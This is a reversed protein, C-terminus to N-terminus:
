DRPLQFERNSFDPGNTVIGGGPTREVTWADNIRDEVFDRPMMSAVTLAGGVYARFEQYEGLWEIAENHTMLPLENPGNM